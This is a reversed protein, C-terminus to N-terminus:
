RPAGIHDVDALDVTIVRFHRAPAEPTAEHDYPEDGIAYDIGGEDKHVLGDEGDEVEEGCTGCVPWHHWVAEVNEHPWAQGTVIYGQRNVRHLGPMAYLDGNDGDVITWVHSPHVQRPIDDRVDDGAVDPVVTYQTAFEDESLHIATEITSM